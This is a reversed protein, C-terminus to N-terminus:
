GFKNPCTACFICFFHRSTRNFNASAPTSSGDSIHRADIGPNINPNTKQSIDHNTSVSVLVVRMIPRLIPLSQPNCWLGQIAIQLSLDRSRKLKLHTPNEYLNSTTKKCNIRVSTINVPNIDISLDTYITWLWRPQGSLHPTLIGSYGVLLPTSIHHRTKYVRRLLLYIRPIRPIGTMLHLLKRKQCTTAKNYYHLKKPHTHAQVTCMRPVVLLYQSVGYV